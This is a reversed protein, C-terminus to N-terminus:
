NKMKAKSKVKSKCIYLPFIVNYVVLYCVLLVSKQWPQPIHDLDKDFHLLNNWQDSCAHMFIDSVSMLKPTMRYLFSFSIINPRTRGM